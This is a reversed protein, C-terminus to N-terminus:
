GGSPAPVPAVAQILRLLDALDHVQVLRSGGAETVEAATERSELSPLTIQVPAPGGGGPESIVALDHHDPPGGVDVEYGLNVLVKALATAFLLPSIDLFVRPATTSM